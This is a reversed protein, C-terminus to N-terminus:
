FHVKLSDLVIRIRNGKPYKKDIIKLLEVCYKSNHTESVM